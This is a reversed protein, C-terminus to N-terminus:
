RPRQVYVRYFKEGWTEFTPADGLGQEIKGQREKLFDCLKQNEDKSAARIRLPVDLLKEPGQGHQWWAFTIGSHGAPLYMSRRNTGEERPEMDPAREVFRARIEQNRLENECRVSSVRAREIEKAEVREIYDKAEPLPIIVRCL